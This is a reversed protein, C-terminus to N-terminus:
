FNAMEFQKARMFLMSLAFKTKLLEKKMKIQQLIGELPFVCDAWEESFSITSRYSCPLCQRLVNTQSLCLLKTEVEIEPMSDPDVKTEPM